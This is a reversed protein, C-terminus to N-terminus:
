YDDLMLLLPPPLPPPPQSRKSFLMATANAVSNKDNEAVM